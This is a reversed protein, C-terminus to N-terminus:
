WQFRHNCFHLYCKLPLLSRPLHHKGRSDAKRHKFVYRKSYFPVSGCNFKGKFPVVIPISCAFYYKIHSDRKCEIGIYSSLHDPHFRVQGMHGLVTPLLRRRLMQRTGGLQRRLKGVRETGLFLRLQRAQGVVQALIPRIKLFAQQFVTGLHVM